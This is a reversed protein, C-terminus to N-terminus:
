PKAGRCAYLTVQMGGPGFAQGDSTGTPTGDPAGANRTQTDFGPVPTCNASVWASIDAQGGMGGRENGNWYIYRLEGNAVLRSLDDPTVVKDQGMFGGLYLVPRGTALVYDAGQMSSPVAM